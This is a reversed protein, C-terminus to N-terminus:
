VQKLFKLFELPSSPVGFDPWTNYQFQIVERSKTSEIDTLRFIRKTYHLYKDGRLYEIVLGVNTLEM